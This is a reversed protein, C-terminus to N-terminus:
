GDLKHVVESQPNQTRLNMPISNLGDFWAHLDSRILSIDHLSRRNMSEVLNCHFVATVKLPMNSQEKGANASKILREPGTPNYNYSQRHNHAAARSDFHEVAISVGSYQHFVFFNELIRLLHPL